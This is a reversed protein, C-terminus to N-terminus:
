HRDPAPLGATVEALIEALATGYAQVLAEPLAAALGVSRSSSNEYVLQPRRGRQDILALQLALVAAPPRGPRFDGYLATVNIELVFAAPQVSGPQAVVEFLGTRDFWDAIRVGLMAAPDAAFAHYPDTVYRVDDLRYVLGASGFPAAVHVRGVRLVETAPRDVASAPVAPMDILYTTAQEVPRGISCAASSLAMCVVLLARPTKM